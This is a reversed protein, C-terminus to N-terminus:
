QTPRIVKKLDGSTFWIQPSIRGPTGIFWRWFRQLVGHPSFHLPTWGGFGYRYREFSYSDYGQNELYYNNEVLEQLAYHRTPSWLISLMLDLVIEEEKSSLTHSGCFQKIYTALRYKQVRNRLKGREGWSRQGFVHFCLYTLCAWVIYLEPEINGDGYLNFFQSVTYHSFGVNDTM